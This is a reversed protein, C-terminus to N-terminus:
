ALDQTRKLAGTSDANQLGSVSGHQQFLEIRRRFEDFKHTVTSIIFRSRNAPLYDRAHGM